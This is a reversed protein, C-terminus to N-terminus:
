TAGEPYKVTFTLIQKCKLSVGGMWLM